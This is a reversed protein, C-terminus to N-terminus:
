IRFKINKKKLIDNLKKKEETSLDIHLAETLTAKYDPEPNLYGSSIERVGFAKSVALFDANNFLRYFIKAISTEDTAWGNIATFITNAYQQAQFKTIKQATSPNENYADLENSANQVEERNDSQKVIGKLLRYAIFSGIFLGLVIAIKKGRESFYPSTKLPNM